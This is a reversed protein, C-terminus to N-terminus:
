FAGLTRFVQHCVYNVATLVLSLFFHRLFMPFLTQFIVVSVQEQKRCNFYENAIQLFQLFSFFWNKASFSIRGKLFCFIVLRSRGLDAGYRLRLLVRFGSKRCSSVVFARLFSFISSFIKRFKKRNKKTETLDCLASFHLLPVRQSKKFM